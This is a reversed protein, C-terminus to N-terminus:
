VSLFSDEPYKQKKEEVEKKGEKMRDNSESTLKNM